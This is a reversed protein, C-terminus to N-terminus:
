IHNWNDQTAHHRTKYQEINKIVDAPTVEVTEAILFIDNGMRWFGIIASQQHRSM